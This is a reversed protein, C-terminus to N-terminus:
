ASGGCDAVESAQNLIAKLDAVRRDIAAVADVIRGADDATGHELAGILTELDGTTSRATTAMTAALEDLKSSKDAPVLNTPLTPPADAAPAARFAQAARLCDSYGTLARVGAASRAMYTAVAPNILDADTPAHRLGELVVGLTAQAVSLDAIAQQRADAAFMEMVASADASATM